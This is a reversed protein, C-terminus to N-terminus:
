LFNLKSLYKKCRYKLENSIKLAEIEYPHKEYGYEMELMDYKTMDQTYHIYEHIITDIFSILSKHQPKFLVIINETEKYYGYCNKNIPCKCKRDYLIIRPLEKQFESMGIIKSCYDIVLLALDRTIYNVGM